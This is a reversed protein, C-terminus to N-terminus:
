CDNTGASEGAESHFWVVTRNLKRDNAFYVQGMGGTGILDVVQYRHAVEM